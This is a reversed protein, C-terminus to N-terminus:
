GIVKNRGTEKAKYLNSDALEIAGELDKYDTINAAGISITVNIKQNNEIAFSIKSIQIRLNELNKLFDAYSIDSPGIMVFEEGGWRGSIIGKKSYIKLISAFKKLVDDGSLHGYTDNINKFHDLDLIAVSYHKSNSKAESIIEESVQNLAYRNYLGTLEDHDAKRTLENVKRNNSSIYFLAFLTITIFVYSNNLIFLISNMYINLEISISLHMLPYATALFFYSFAILFAYIFPRKTLVKGSSFAPLFYAAIMGFCWNQYCPRWGFSLIGCVMHVWIELFTIEMYFEVNKYCKFMFCSYVVLSAINACIMFKHGIFTYIFMLIVHCLLLFINVFFVTIDIRGQPEYKRKWLEKVESM